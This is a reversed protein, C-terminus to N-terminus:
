KRQKSAFETKDCIIHKPHLINWSCLIGTYIFHCIHPIHVNCLWPGRGREELVSYGQKAQFLKISLKTYVPLYLCCLLLKLKGADMYRCSFFNFLLHIVISHWLWLVTKGKQVESLMDLESGLRAYIAM